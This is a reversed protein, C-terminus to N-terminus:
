TSFLCIEVYISHNIQELVGSKLYSKSNKLLITLTLEIIKLDINLKKFFILAPQILIKEKFYDEHAKQIANFEKSNIVFERVCTNIRKKVM